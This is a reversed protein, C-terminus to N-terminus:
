LQWCRSRTKLGTSVMLSCGSPPLLHPVSLLSPSSSSSSSLSCLLVFSTQPSSPNCPEIVNSAAWKSKVELDNAREEERAIAARLVEIQRKLSETECNRCSSPSLSQLLSPSLWKLPSVGIPYLQVPWLILLIFLLAFDNTFTYIPNAVLILLYQLAIAINTM